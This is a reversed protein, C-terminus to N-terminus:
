ESRSIRFTPEKEKMSAEFLVTNFRTERASEPAEFRFSYQSFYEVEVLLKGEEDNYIVENLYPTVETFKLEYSDGHDRRDQELTSGVEKIQEWFAPTFCPKLMVPDQERVLTTNVHIFAQRAGRLFEHLKPVAKHEKSFAAYIPAMMVRHKAQARVELAAIYFPQWVM